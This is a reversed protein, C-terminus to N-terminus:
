PGRPALPQSSVNALILGILGSIFFLKHRIGAKKLRLDILHKASMMVLPFALLAALVGSSGPCCGAPLCKVATFSMSSPVLRPKPKSKSSPWAATRVRVMMVMVMATAKATMLAPAKATAKATLSRRRRLSLPLTLLKSVSGSDRVACTCFHERRPGCRRDLPQGAM